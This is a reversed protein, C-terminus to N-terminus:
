YKLKKTLYKEISLAQIDLNNNMGKGIEIDPKVTPGHYDSGGTILLGYAKALNISNIMKSYTFGSHYCELGMLGHKKLDAIYEKLEMYEKKLQYNHALVPIGNAEKIIDICQYASFEHKKTRTEKKALSIYCKFAENINSCYGLKVLMKSIEVNNVTGQKTFLEEIDKDTFNIKCKDKLYEIILMTNYKNMEKLKKLYSQLDTNYIDINYGLIHCNGKDISASLEIGTVFKLNNKKHLNNEILEKCGDVTDHDTISFFDIGLEKIKDILEYVSLEGDSYSTHIHLDKM